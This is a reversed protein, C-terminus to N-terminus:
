FARLYQKPIPAPQGLKRAAQLSQHIKAAKATGIGEVDQLDRLSCGAAAAVGGGVRDILRRILIPGIGDTLSLQLWHHLPM